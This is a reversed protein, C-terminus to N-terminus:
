APAGPPRGTVLERVLGDIEDRIREFTALREEDSGGARAPDELSWHQTRGGGPFVPCSERANDCVTIVDDFPQGAFEEVSKSRLGSPDVGVAALARVTYPNVKLPDVGASFAEVRDGAHHRLLAEAM